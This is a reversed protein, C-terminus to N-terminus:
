KTVENTLKDYCEKCYDAQKSTRRIAVYECHKRVKFEPITMGFVKIPLNSNKPVYDYVNKGCVDCYYKEIKGKVIKKM